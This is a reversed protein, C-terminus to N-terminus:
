GKRRRGLVARKEYKRELEGYIREPDQVVPLYREYM